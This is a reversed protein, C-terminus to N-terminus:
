TYEGHRQSRTTRPYARRHRHPSSPLQLRPHINRLDAAPVAGLGLLEITSDVVQDGSDIIPQALVHSRDPCRRITHRTSGAVSQDARDAPATKSGLGGRQPADHGFWLAARPRPPFRGPASPAAPRIGRPVGPRRRSCVGRSRWPMEPRVAPQPCCQGGPRSPAAGLRRRLGVAAAGPAPVPGSSSDVAFGRRLACKRLFDSFM